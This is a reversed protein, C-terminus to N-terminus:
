ATEERQNLCRKCTDLHDAGTGVERDFVVQPVKVGCLTKTPGPNTRKSPEHNLDGTLVLHGKTWKCPDVAWAILTTPATM